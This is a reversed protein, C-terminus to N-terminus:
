DTQNKANLMEFYKNSLNKALLSNNCVVSVKIKNEGLEEIFIGAETSDLCYDFNKAFDFAIIYGKKYNKRTVRAKLENLVALTKDFCDKKGLAFEREFRGTTENEFKANSVGAARFPMDLVACSSVFFLLFFLIFNKVMFGIIVIFFKKTFVVKLNQIILASYIATLLSYHATLLQPTRLACRIIIPAEGRV